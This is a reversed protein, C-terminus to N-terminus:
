DYGGILVPNFSVLLKYKTGVICRTSEIVKDLRLFLENKKNVLTLDDFSKWKQTNLPNVLAM